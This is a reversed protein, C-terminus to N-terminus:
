GLGLFSFLRNILGPKASRTVYGKGDYNIEANALRNSLVINESSIDVFRTRGRLQIDRREGNVLLNQSGQLLLDGNPYVEIVQAAISAVFKDSRETEGIGRYKSDFGISLSESEGAGDFGGSLSTDKGSRTGVRNTASASEYIVITVIDGVQHAKNDAAMSAWSDGSYLQEAHATATLMLAVMTLPFTIRVNM